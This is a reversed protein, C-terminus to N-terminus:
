PTEPLPEPLVVPGAPAKSTGNGAGNVQAQLSRGLSSLERLLERNPQTKALEFAVRRDVTALMAWLRSQRSRASDPNPEAFQPTQPAAM